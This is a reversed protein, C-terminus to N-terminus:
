VFVQRTDLSEAGAGEGLLVARAAGGKKLAFSGFRFANWATEADSSHVVIGVKMKVEDDSGGDCGTRKM